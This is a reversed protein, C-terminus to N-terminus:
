NVALQSLTFLNTQFIPSRLRQRLPHEERLCLPTSGLPSHFYILSNLSDALVLVTPAGRQTPNATATNPPRESIPRPTPQLANFWALLTSCVVCDVKFCALSANLWRRALSSSILWCNCLSRFTTVSLSFTVCVSRTVARFCSLVAVLATSLFTVLRSVETFASSAVLALVSSTFLSFPSTVPTFVSKSAVLFLM